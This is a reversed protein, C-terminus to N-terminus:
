RRLPPTLASCHLLADEELKRCKLKLGSKDINKTNKNRLINREGDLIYFYFFYPFFQFFITLFHINQLLQLPARKRPAVKNM